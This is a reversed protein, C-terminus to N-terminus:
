WYGLEIGKEYVGQALARYGAENLHTNDIRPNRLQLSIYGREARVLDWQTASLGNIKLGNEILYKRGIFLHEGFAERFEEEYWTDELGVPETTYGWIQEFDNPDDTSSIIIYRDTEAEEILEEYQRILQKINKWGGNDGMQIVLIDEAQSGYELSRALIERSDEGGVGLNRAPIGTLQELMEPYTLGDSGFGETISDGWCNIEEAPTNVAAYAPHESAAPDAKEEANDSDMEDDEQPGNYDAANHGSQEQNEAAPDQYGAATGQPDPESEPRGCACLLFIVAVAAIRSLVHKMIRDQLRKHERAEKVCMGPVPGANERRLFFSGSKYYAVAEPNILINHSQRKLSRQSPQSVQQM